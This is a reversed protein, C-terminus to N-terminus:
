ILGKAKALWEPIIFDAYAIDRDHQEMTCQSKPIWGELWAKETERLLLLTFQYGDVKDNPKNDEVPMCLDGM